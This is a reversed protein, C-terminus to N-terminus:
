KCHRVSTGNYNLHINDRCLHYHKINSNDILIFDHLFTQARLFNYVDQIDREKGIRLPTSSVYVNNIGHAHCKNVVSIIQKAIEHPEDKGLNNSGINIVCTDPKDNALTLEFHHDLDKVTAGPFSKRYAMGNRIYHNFEHLNIGSCLSDSIIAINEGQETLSAYTSNGPRHKVSKNFNSEDDLILERYPNASVLNNFVRADSSNTNHSSNNVDDVQQWQMLNPDSTVPQESSSLSIENPLRHSAVDSTDNIKDLTMNTFSLDNCNDHSSTNKSNIVNQNRCSLEGILQEIITNKAIIETKLYNIQSQLLERMEENWVKEKLMNEKIFEILTKDTIIDDNLIHDNDNDINENNIHALKSDNLWWYADIHMLLCWCADIPMFLCWPADIHTLTGCYANVHLFICWYAHIHMFRCWHDDIHMFTCSHADIYTLTWWYADNHMFTFFHASIHMSTCWYEDIPMLSCWHSWYAGIHIVISSHGM